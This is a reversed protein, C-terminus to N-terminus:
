SILAGSFAKKPSTSAAGMVPSSGGFIVNIVKPDELFLIGMTKDIQWAVQARLKVDLRPIEIEIETGDRLPVDFRLKLGGM